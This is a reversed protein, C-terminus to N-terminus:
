NFDDRRINPAIIALTLKSRQLIFDKIEFWINHHQLFGYHCCLLYPFRALVVHHVIFDHHYIDNYHSPANRHKTVESLDDKFVLNSRGYRFSLIQKQFKEICKSGDNWGKWPYNPAVEIEKSIQFFFTSPDCRQFGVGNCEIIDNLFEVQHIHFWLHPEVSPVILSSTLILHGVM